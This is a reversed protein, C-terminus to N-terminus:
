DKLNFANTQLSEVTKDAIDVNIVGNNIVSAFDRARKLANTLKRNSGDAYLAIRKAADDTINASNLVCWKRALQILEDTAYDSLITCVSFCSLLKEPLKIQTDMIGVLTFVPLDLRISRAAPGKGIIIDIYFDEMATCLLEICDQRIADFNEIVLINGEELNTLTMALDSVNRIANFSSVRKCVGLEDAIADILTDKGCGRPGCLLIHGLIENRMKAAAISVKLTEIIPTQGIFTDLTIYKMSEHIEM